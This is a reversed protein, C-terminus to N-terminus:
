LKAGPKISFKLAARYADTTAPNEVFPDFLWGFNIYILRNILPLKVIEMHQWYDKYGAFFAQGAHDPNHRDLRPNGTCQIDSIRDFKASLPGNVLGHGSNRILWLVQGLYSKYAPYHITQWGKDGWLSNDPTQFWILWKPLRPEDARANNNDSNGWQETAFLPLLPAILTAFVDVTFNILLYALYRFEGAKCGRWCVWHTAPILAILYLAWLLTRALLMFPYDLIKV